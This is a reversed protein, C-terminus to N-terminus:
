LVEADKRSDQSDPDSLTQIGDQGLWALHNSNILGKNSQQLVMEDM